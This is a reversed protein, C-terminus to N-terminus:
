AQVRPQCFCYDGSLFSDVYGGLAEESSLAVDLQRACGLLRGLMNLKEETIAREFKKMRASVFDGKREVLFDLRELVEGLFRARRVRRAWAAAGGKFSIQIYNENRNDSCNTDIMTYHYGLKLSLNLYERSLLAYSNEGYRRRELAPSTATSALVSAFGRADIPKIAMWDVGPCTMGRWIAQMPISAIQEPRASREGAPVDLGGGLDIMFLGIPISGELRVALGGSVIDEYDYLRFIENIAVEHAFRTIDHFSQCGEPRFSRDKPDILNLPAVKALVRMLTNFVTTTRLQHQDSAQLNLLEEVRGLYVTGDHADVTIETGTEILKTANGTDVIAPIRSERALSAMHGTSSGVDTLIAAARSMVRGYRPSTHRAVLVAGRPFGRLDQDRGVVWAPGAGVGPSAVTGGSLIVPHREVAARVVESSPRVVAQEPLRLPRSQLVQLHGRGDLAWEVDQPRHFHEELALAYETLAKIQAPRLCPAQQRSVPVAREQTGAGRAVLEVEKRGIRQSLTQGEVRSIRYHDASVRGEVAYRGLGWVANILVTDGARGTPDASYAVGSAVAPVMRQVLVGMAVAPQSFGHSRLYQVAQPNYASALVELYAPLLGDQHVELVTAFQGAFSFDSDEGVASSRVSVAPRTWRGGLRSYAEHIARDLEYPVQAQRVVGQAEACIAELGAEDVDRARALLEELRESLQNTELLYEGASATIAFGEPVPLGLRSVVEGLNAAKGGVLSALGAHVESLPLVLEPRVPKRVELLIEMLEVHVRQYTDYLSLYRKGSIINLDNVIRQVHDSLALCSSRVYQMDFIYDGALKQEMDAIIELARSDEQLLHKFRNFTEVLRLRKDVSRARRLRKLRGLFGFM